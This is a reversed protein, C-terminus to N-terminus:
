RFEAKPSYRATEIRHHAPCAGLARGLTLVESILGLVIGLTQGTFPM